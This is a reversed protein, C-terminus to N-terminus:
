WNSVAQWQRWRKRAAARSPSSPEASAYIKTFASFLGVRSSSISERLDADVLAAELLERVFGDGLSQSGTLVRAYRRLYPLQRAILDSLAM